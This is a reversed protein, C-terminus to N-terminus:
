PAASQVRVKELLLANGGIAGVASQVSLRQETVGDYLGIVLLYEGPTIAADLKLAHHDEVKKGPLWGSTPRLGNAPEGDHQGWVKGDASELHVFVKYRDVVRDQARWWLTVQLISDKSISQPQLDYGLLEIAQGFTAEVNRTPEDLSPANVYLTLETTGSSWSEVPFSARMLGDRIAKTPQRGFTVLWIRQYRHIIEDVQGSDPEDYRPLGSHDYYRFCQARWLSSLVIADGPAAQGSIQQALPALDEVPRLSYARWYWGMAAVIVLAALVTPWRSRAFARALGQGAALYVLPVIPTLYYSYLPADLLRALLYLAAYQLAVLGGILTLRDSRRITFIGIMAPILLVLGALAQTLTANDYPAAILGGSVERGLTYLDPLNGGAVNVGEGRAVMALWPTFLLALMALVGAQAVLWAVMRRGRYAWLVWLNYLAIGVGGLLHTSMTILVAAGYGWWAKLSRGELAYDACALAMLLGLTALPYARITQAQYILPASISALLAAALGAEASFWRKGLHFSLPILAIGPLASLARMTWVSQGLVSMWLNLLIYYLPMQETPLGALMQSLSQSSRVFSLGEDNWLGQRDLGWFRLATALLTLAVVAWGYGGSHAPEVTESAHRGAM